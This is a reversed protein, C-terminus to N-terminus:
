MTGIIAGSEVSEATYEISKAERFGCERVLYISRAMDLLKKCRKGLVRRQHRPMTDEDQAFSGADKGPRSVVGSSEEERGLTAWGALRIIWPIWEDVQQETVRVRTVEGAVEHDNEDMEIENEDKGDVVVRGEVVKENESEVRKRKKTQGATNFLEQLYPKSLFASPECVGHCCTAFCISFTDKCAGDMSAKTQNVKHQHQLWSLALDTAVGCFHKSICIYHTPPLSLSLSSAETGDVTAIKSPTGEEPEPVAVGPVAEHILQLDELTLHRVDKTIRVLRPKVPHPQTRIMYDVQNRSRFRQRDLLVFNFPEVAQPMSPDASSSTDAPTIMTELALQLHRSLGGTGAGFEVFVQRQKPATNTLSTQSTKLDSNMLVPLLLGLKSMSEILQSEQALHRKKKAGAISFLPEYSAHCPFDKQLVSADDAGNRGMKWDESGRCDELVEQVLWSPDISFVREVAQLFAVPIDKPDVPRQQEKEKQMRRIEEPDEEREKEKQLKAIAALAEKQHHGCLVRGAELEPALLQSQRQLFRDLIEQRKSETLQQADHAQVEEHIRDQDFQQIQSQLEPSLKVALKCHRFRQQKSGWASHQCIVPQVPTHQMSHPFITLSLNTIGSPIDLTIKTSLVQIPTNRRFLDLDPRETPIALISTAAAAPQPHHTHQVPHHLCGFADYLAARLPRSDHSPSSVSSWSVSSPSSGSPPLASKPTAHGVHPTRVSPLTLPPHHSHHGHDKDFNTLMDKNKARDESVPMDKDKVKDEVKDKNTFRHKNSTGNLMTNIVLAQQNGLINGGEEGIKQAQAQAQAQAHGHESKSANFSMSLPRRGSKNSEVARPGEAEASLVNEGRHLQHEHDSPHAQDKANSGKQELRLRQEQQSQQQQQQQQQQQKQQKQTLHPLTKHAAVNPFLIVAAM